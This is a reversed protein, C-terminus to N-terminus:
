RSPLTVLPFEASRAPDVARWDDGALDGAFFNLGILQVGADRVAAIFEDTEADAPVPQHGLGGSSLPM